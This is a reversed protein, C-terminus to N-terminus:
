RSSPKQGKLKETIEDVLTNLNMEQLAKLLTHWTTPKRTQQQMWTDLIDMNVEEPDSYQRKIHRVRVRELGLVDGLAEYKDTKRAVLMRLDRTKPKSDTFKPLIM